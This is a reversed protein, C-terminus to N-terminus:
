YRCVKLQSENNFPPVGPSLQSPVHGIFVLWIRCTACADWRLHVGGVAHMEGIAHDM